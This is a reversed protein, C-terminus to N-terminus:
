GAFISIGDSYSVYKGNKLGDGAEGSAKDAVKLCFHPSDDGIPTKV